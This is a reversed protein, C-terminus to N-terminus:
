GRQNFIRFKSQIQQDVHKQLTSFSLEPNQGYHGSINRLGGGTGPSWGGCAFKYFDRCPENRWNMSALIRSAAQRCQDSRCVFEDKPEDGTCAGDDQPVYFVKYHMYFKRM